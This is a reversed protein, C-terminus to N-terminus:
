SAVETLTALVGAPRRIPRSLQDRVEAASVPRGYFFGQAVDCGLDCLMQAVLPGEVGEAVTQIGLSRGLQVLSRVILADRAEVAM